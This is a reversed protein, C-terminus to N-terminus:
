FLTAQDISKSGSVVESQPVFRYASQKVNQNWTLDGGAAKALERADSVRTRWACFGAIRALEAVPVWVHPNAQFHAWLRATASLRRELEPGLTM